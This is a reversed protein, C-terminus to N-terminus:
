VSKAVAVDHLMTVAATLIRFRSLQHAPYYELNEISATLSYLGVELARQGIYM